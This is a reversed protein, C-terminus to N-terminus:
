PPSPSSEPFMECFYRRFSTDAREVERAATKKTWGCGAFRVALKALRAQSCKARRRAGVGLLRADERERVWMRWRRRLLDGRPDGREELWDALAGALDLSEFRVNRAFSSLHLLERGTM